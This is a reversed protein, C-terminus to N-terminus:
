QSFVRSNAAWVLPDNLSHAYVDWCNYGNNWRVSVVCLEGKTNRVKFINMHGNTLLAVGKSQPGRSQKRMLAFIQSLKVETSNGLENFLRDARSSEELRHCKLEAKPAEDEVLNNFLIFFDVPIYGIKVIAFNNTDLKFNDSVVFKPQADLKVVGLHALIRKTVVEAEGRALQPITRLVNKRACLVDIDVPEVGEKALAIALQAMLTASFDSPKAM